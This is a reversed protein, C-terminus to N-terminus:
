PHTRGERNEGLGEQVAEGVAKLRRPQSRLAMRGIDLVVTSPASCTRCRSTRLQATRFLTRL